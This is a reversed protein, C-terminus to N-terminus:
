NLDFHIGVCRMVHLLKFAFPENEKSLDFAYGVFGVLLGRRSSIQEQLVVLGRMLILVSDVNRM